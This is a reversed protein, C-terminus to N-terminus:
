VGVLPRRAGAARQDLARLLLQAALVLLHREPHELLVRARAAEVLAGAPGGVALALCLRAPAHASGLDAVPLAERRSRARRLSRPRPPSPPTCVSDDSAAYACM